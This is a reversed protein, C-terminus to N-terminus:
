VSLLRIHNKSQLMFQYYVFTYMDFFIYFLYISMEGLPIGTAIGHEFTWAIRQNSRLLKQKQLVEMQVDCANEADVPM